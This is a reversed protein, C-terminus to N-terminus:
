TGNMGVMLLPPVPDDMKMVHEEIVAQMAQTFSAFLTLCVGLVVTNTSMDEGIGEEGEGVSPLLAAMGVLSVSVVIWFVGVWHFKLLHHKLVNHKLLAIFIIQSGCLTQQISIHLYQLGIMLTASAVLFGCIAPIALIFYVRTSTERTSVWTPPETENTTGSHEIGGMDDHIVGEDDDFDHGSFNLKFIMVAWHIPLVSLMALFMLFTLFLPKNFSETQPSGDEIEDTWTTSMIWKTLVADVTGSIVTLVFIIIETTGFNNVNDLSSM